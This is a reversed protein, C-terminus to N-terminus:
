PSGSGWPQCPRPHRPWPRRGCSTLQVRGGADREEVDREKEQGSKKQTPCMTSKKRRKKKRKLPDTIVVAVEGLEARGLVAGLSSVGSLLTVLSGRLNGDLIQAGGVRDTKTKGEVEGHEVVLDLVRWVLSAVKGLLREIIGNGLKVGEGLVRVLVRRQDHLEQPVVEGEPGGVHLVLLVLLLSHRLGSELRIEKNREYGIILSKLFRFFFFLFLFLFVVM